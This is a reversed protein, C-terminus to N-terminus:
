VWTLQLKCIEETYNIFHYLLGHHTACHEQVLLHAGFLSM